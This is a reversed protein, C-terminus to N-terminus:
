AQAVASNPKHSGAPSVGEYKYYIHAPTDLERELRHARFLPTPRWLRYIERVEDPIEVEPETSVEQAILGMPFIPTLVDPGAPPGAPRLPPAPEGPLDPMLNVWHTPIEAETLLIKTDDPMEGGTDRATGFRVGCRGRTKVRLASLVRRRSMSSGASRTAPRTTLTATTANATQRRRDSRLTSTRIRSNAPRASAITNAIKTRNTRSSRFMASVPLTSRSSEATSSPMAQSSNRREPSGSRKRSRTATTIGA